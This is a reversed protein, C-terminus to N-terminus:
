PRICMVSLTRAPVEEFTSVGKCLAYWGQREDSIVLSSYMPYRFEGCSVAGSIAKSGDDDCFCELWGLCNNQYIKSIDIGGAPGPPGEPGQCDLADCAGSGDKDEDGNCDGSSDLDWCSIGDSGAQGETNLSLSNENRRCDSPSDVYRMDGNRTNYCVNIIDAWSPVSIVFAVGFIIALRLFSKMRGGKEKTITVPEGSRM